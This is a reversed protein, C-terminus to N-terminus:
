EQLEVLSARFGEMVLEGNQNVASDKIRVIARKPNGRSPRVEVVETYATLTDGPKVPNKFRLEDMGLMAVVHLKDQRLVNHFPGTGSLGVVIAAVCPGALIREGFQKNRMYERDAHIDSHTWTLNTILTFDGEGITRGQSIFKKGVPILETFSSM